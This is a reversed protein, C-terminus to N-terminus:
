NKFQSWFHYETVGQLCGLMFWHITLVALVLALQPAIYLLMEENIDMSSCQDVDALLSGHLM